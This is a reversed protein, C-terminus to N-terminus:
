GCLLNPMVISLKRVSLKRVFSLAKEVKGLNASPQYFKTVLIDTVLILASLVLDTM